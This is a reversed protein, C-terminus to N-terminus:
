TTDPADCGTRTRPNFSTIYTRCTTVIPDCGTRTRPNFRLCWCLQAVPSLTAGRAPAHISVAADSNSRQTCGADCGTRTRPNFGQRESEMGYGEWTAGRAPAHISVEKDFHWGFLGPLDCGTRTRPNFGPERMVPLKHERDCGTRTRPNFCRGMQAHQLTQPPRVGHPHTSQFVGSLISWKLPM